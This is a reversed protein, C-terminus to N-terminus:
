ALSNLIDHCEDQLQVRLRALLEASIGLESKCKSVVSSDFPQTRSIDDGPALQDALEASVVLFKWYLHGPPIELNPHHCLASLAVEQETGWQRLVVSGMKQHHERLSALISDQSGAAEGPGAASKESMVWLLFSVGIDSLLGALYATEPDPRPGAPAALPQSVPVGGVLTRMAVARAVSYRWTKEQLLRLSADKLAFCNQAYITEAMNQIKRFGVRNLAVKVDNSRHGRAYFTSNSLRLMQTTIHPDQEILGAVEDVTTAPQKVLMRLKAVVAPVVPLSM